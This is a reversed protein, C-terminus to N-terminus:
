EVPRRSARSALSYRLRPRLARRAAACTRTTRPGNDTTRPAAACRTVPWSRHDVSAGNRSVLSVAHLQEWSRQGHPLRRVIVKQDTRLWLCIPPSQGYRGAGGADVGGYARTAGTAEGESWDAANLGELRKELIDALPRLLHRFGESFFRRRQLGSDGSRSGEAENAGM